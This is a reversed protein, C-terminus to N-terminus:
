ACRFTQSGRRPGAPKRGPYSWAVRTFELRGRCRQPRDLRLTLPYVHFHGAACYPTCDNVHATGSGAATRPQWSTWHIRTAYFNADACALVMSRPRVLLKPSTKVFARCGAFGPVRASATASAGPVVLGAAILGAALARM